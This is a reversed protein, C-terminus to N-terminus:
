LGCQIIPHEIVIKEFQNHGDFYVNSSVYVSKYEAQSFCIFNYSYVSHKLLVCVMGWWQWWFHCGPTSLVLYLLEKFAGRRTNLWNNAMMKPWKCMIIVITQLISLPPLYCFRSIAWSRLPACGMAHRLALSLSSFIAPAAVCICSSSLVADFCCFPHM